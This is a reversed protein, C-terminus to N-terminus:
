LSCIKTSWMHLTKKNSYFNNSYLWREVNSAMCINLKWTEAVTCTTQQVLTCRNKDRSSHRSTEYSTGLPQRLEHFLTWTAFPTGLHKLLHYWINHHTPKKRQLSDDKKLDFRFFLKNFKSGLSNGCEIEYKWLEIASRAPFLCFRFYVGRVMHSTGYSYYMKLSCSCTLEMEHANITYRVDLLRELLLGWNCTGGFFM